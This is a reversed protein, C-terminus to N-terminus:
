RSTQPPKLIQKERLFTYITVAFIVWAPGIVGKVNLGILFTFSTASLGIISALISALKLSGDSDGRHLKYAAYLGLLASAAYLITLMQSAQVLSNFILSVLLYISGTVHLLELAKFEPQIVATKLKAGCNGCFKMGAPNEFGCRPCKVKESM